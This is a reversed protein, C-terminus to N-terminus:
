SSFLRYSGVVTAAQAHPQEVCRQALERQFEVFAAIDGMTNPTDDTDTMFIHIFTVKDELRLTAYRMGGPNRAALETYVAEVLRQNEDAREPKTKYRIVSKM